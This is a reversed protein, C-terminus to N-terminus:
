FVIWIICIECSGLCFWKNFYLEFFGEVFCIMIFWKELDILKLWNLFVSFKFNIKYIIREIM